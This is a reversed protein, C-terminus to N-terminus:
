LVKFMTTPVTISSETPDYVERGIVIRLGSLQGTFANGGFATNANGVNFTGNATGGFGTATSTGTRTGDVFIAANNSADMAFAVHTWANQTLTGSGFTSGGNREVQVTQSPGYHFVGLSGSSSDRYEFIGTNTTTLAVTTRAWIEASMPVGGARGFSISTALSANDGTGDLQLANTAGIDTNANTSNIAADGALTWTTSASDFQALLTRIISENLVTGTEGGGGVSFASGDGINKIPTDSINGGILKTM